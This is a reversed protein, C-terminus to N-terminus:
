SQPISGCATYIRIEPYSQHLNFAHNGDRLSSLSAQVITESVGELVDTLPYDVSGLNPSCSGFHIHLPQPESEPRPPTVVVTIRTRDEDAVLTAVASQGSGEQEALNVVIEDPEASCGILLILGWPVLWKAIKM